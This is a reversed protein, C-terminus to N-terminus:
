GVQEQQVRGVNVAAQLFMPLPRLTDPLRGIHEHADQSRLLVVILRDSGKEALSGRGILRHDQHEVHNIPRRFAVGAFIPQLVKAGTRANIRQMDINGWVIFLGAHSKPQRKIRKRSAGGVQPGIQGVQLKTRDLCPCKAPGQSLNEVAIM